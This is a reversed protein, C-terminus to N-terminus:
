NKKEYYNEKKTEILNAYKIDKTLPKFPNVGAAPTFTLEGFYIKGDINYLDVRVFQFEKSLIKAIKIMKDFNNPKQCKYKYNPFDGERMDILNWNVDYFNASHDIFRDFDVKIFEPKGNFCFFKYDLLKGDSDSMYKEIIIKKKVNKYQPEKKMKAYNENMWKNLKKIIKKKNVKNKDEVVINYGSGTNLKIVYKKPLSDFNIDDAKDYVDILPILYEDGIKNCIYDRVLYKDVYNNYKELNGYLKLWQIKEGFFRPNQFNVLKHYGRFNEINLVIKAPLIYLIKRYLQRFIKKFKKKM